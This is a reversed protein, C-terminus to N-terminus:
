VTARAGKEQLARGDGGASGAAASVALFFVLGIWVCLAVHRLASREPDVSQNLHREFLANHAKDGVKEQSAQRRSPGGGGGGGGGGGQDWFCRDFSFRKAWM